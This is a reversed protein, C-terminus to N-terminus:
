EGIVKICTKDEEVEVKPKLPLTITFTTGKSVATEVTITGEHAEIIRKCIALGFGMGQAKTTFLPTFIKQLAEEPIGTGTDAFAIEVHDRTQCSSIELTGREPMADIANRILNIFVRIMKEANVWILTEEHVRNVSKIRDPVQIMRIAENVLTNAAHKTLKLHIERSYELLDNIIKNSYEIDKEITDFMEKAQAKSIAIGKKKLYYVANKIGSLPNRLDHGVMGALEGIAALREAKLLRSQTDKLESTRIAITEELRKSYDQLNQQVQKKETADRVISVGYFKGSIQLSAYSIEVPFITGDKKVGMREIISEADFSKLQKKIFEKMITFIIPDNEPTLLCSISKGVIQKRSYGFLRQASPNWFTINLKDDMVIIADITANIITRLSEEREKLREEIKKRKTIPVAFEVSAVVNGASDKAPMTTLEAWISADSNTRKCYEHSDFEFSADSNFKSKNQKM